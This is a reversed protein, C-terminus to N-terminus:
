ENGFEMPRFELSVIELKTPEFKQECMYQLAKQAVECHAKNDSVVQETSMILSATKSMAEQSMLAQTVEFQILREIEDDTMESYSTLEKLEGISRQKQGITTSM